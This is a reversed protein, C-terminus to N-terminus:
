SRPSDTRVQPQAIVRDVPAFCSVQEPSRAHLRPTVGHPVRWGTDPEQCGPVSPCRSSVTTLRLRHIPLRQFSMLCESCTNELLGPKLTATTAAKASPMPALVAM